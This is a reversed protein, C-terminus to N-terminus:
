GLDSGMVRAHPTWFTLAEVDPEPIDRGAGLGGAVVVMRQIVARDTSGSPRSADAESLLVTRSHSGPARHIEHRNLHRTLTPNGAKAVPNIGSM